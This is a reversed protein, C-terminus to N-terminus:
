ASGQLKRETQAASTGQQDPTPIAQMVDGSRVTAFNAKAKRAHRQRAEDELRPVAKLMHWSVLPCWIFWLGFEFFFNIFGQRSFPGDLFFSNLTEGVFAFGVFIGYWAVSAPVLPKERKDALFAVGMAFMQVSTISFPIDFILWGFDLMQQMSEASASPRYANTLWASMHTLLPVYLAAGTLMQIPLLISDKGVIGGMLKSIGVSWIIYCVSFTICVTMGVRFLNPWERFIKAVEEAPLNAAIPPLNFCMTWFIMFVGMFVIGNWLAFRWYKFEDLPDVDKDFEM